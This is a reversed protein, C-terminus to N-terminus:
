GRTGASGLAALASRRASSNATPVSIRGAPQALQRFEGAFQQRSQHGNRVRRCLAPRLMQGCIQRAEGHTGRM